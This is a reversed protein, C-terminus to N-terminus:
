NEIFHFESEIALINLMVQDMITVMLTGRFFILFSEVSSSFQDLTLIISNLTLVSLKCHAMLNAVFTIYKSRAIKPSSYVKHIICANLKFQTKTCVYRSMQASLFSCSFENSVM